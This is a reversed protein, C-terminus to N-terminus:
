VAKRELATKLSFGNRQKSGGPGFVSVNHLVKQREELQNLIDPIITSEQALEASRKSWYDDGLRYQEAIDRIEAVSHELLGPIEVQPATFSRMPGLDKWWETLQDNRVVTVIQWRHWQFTPPRVLNVERLAWAKEDENIAITVPRM